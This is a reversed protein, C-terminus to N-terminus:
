EAPIAASREARRKRSQELQDQTQRINIYAFALIFGFTGFTLALMEM